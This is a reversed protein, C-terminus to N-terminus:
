LHKYNYIVQELVPFAFETFDADTLGFKQFHHLYARSQAMKHTKEILQDLPGAISQSNSVLTVRREYRELLADSRFEQYKPGAWTTYLKPDRLQTTDAEQVTLGRLVCAAGLMRNGKEATLNWDIKTGAANSLAMKQVRTLLQPWIDTSFEMSKRSLLPVSYTSLFNYSPMSCLDSLVAEYTSTGYQSYTALLGPPHIPVFVSALVSTVLGNMHSFEPREVGLESRALQALQDNYFVLVGDASTCVHSLTLVSNYNQLIVEGFDHPWIVTNLIPVCSGLDDRLSETLQAGVGSGTGGGLSHFLLLGSLRDTAEIRARCLNLLEERASEGHTKYGFAWNNGSGEQRCYCSESAYQWTGSREATELCAQVVKPEMDILVARAVRQGSATEEFFTNNLSNSCAPPATAAEKSLLDFLASGIQNGCQGLQVTLISM